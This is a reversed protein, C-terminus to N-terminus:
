RYRSWDILSMQYFAFILSGLIFIISLVIISNLVRNRPLSYKVFEDEYTKFIKKKSLFRSNVIVLPIGVIICYLLKNVAVIQKTLVSWWALCEILFLVTLSNLLILARFDDWGDDSVAKFFVR